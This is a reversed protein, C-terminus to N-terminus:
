FIDGAVNKLHKISAKGARQNLIISIIDIQWDADGKKRGLYLSAAKAIKQLKARNVRSEPGFNPGFDVKNAKVEVFVTKGKLEAIIDIEGWPKRYNRTIIKYNNTILYHCAIDEAYNGFEKTNQVM